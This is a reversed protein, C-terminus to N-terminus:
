SGKKFYTVYLAGIIVFPWLFTVGLSGAGSLPTGNQQGQRATASEIIIGTVLYWLLWDM